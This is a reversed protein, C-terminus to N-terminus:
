ESAMVHAHFQPRELVFADRLTEESMKWFAKLPSDPLVYYDSFDMLHSLTADAQLNWIGSVDNLMEESTPDRGEALHYVQTPEMEASMGYKTLVRRVNRAFGKMMCRNEDNPDEGTM